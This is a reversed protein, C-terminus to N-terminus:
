NFSRAADNKNVRAVLRMRVKTPSRPGSIRWTHDVPQAGRHDGVDGALIDVRHTLQGRQHRMM